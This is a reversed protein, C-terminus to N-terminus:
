RCVGATAVGARGVLVEPANDGDVVYPALTDLAWDRLPSDIALFQDWCWDRSILILGAIKRREVDSGAARRLLEAILDHSNWNIKAGVLNSHRLDAGFLHSGVLDAGALYARVLNARDLDVRALNAGCLNVGCLNVGHLDAGGLDIWALNVGHLYEGSLDAFVLDAGAAVAEIVADRATEACESRYLIRSASFRSKIEHM